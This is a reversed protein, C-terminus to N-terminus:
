FWNIVKYFDQKRILLVSASKHGSAVITYPCRSPFLLDVCRKITKRAFPKRLIDFEDQILFQDGL